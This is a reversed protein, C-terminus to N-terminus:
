GRMIVAPDQRNIRWAPFIAALFISSLAVGLSELELLLLAFPSSTALVVGVSPIMENRILLVAMLSLVAGAAYGCLALVFGEALLSRLVFGRTSGLARLVGIERRRENVAISFILGIWLVALGWGIGLLGPINRLLSAMQKQGKFFNTSDFVTVGPINKLIRRAVEHPTKGPEAKVLIYPASNVAIGPNGNGPTPYLRLLEQATEFTVFVTKDLSTGTPSLHGALRLSLGALDFEDGGDKSFVQSGAIADGVGIEGAPEEQLWTLVSFDTAPDYAVLFIESDKANRSEPLISLRLQPSARDVGPTVSLTSLLVELEVNRKGQGSFGSVRPVVLIDAGLNETGSVSLRLNEEIGQVILTAWVTSGAVLAVCLFILFSRFPSAAIRRLTLRALNM